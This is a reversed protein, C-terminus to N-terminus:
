KKHAPAINSLKLPDPFESKVSAKNVCRVLYPLFFTGEKLLNLPIDGGM